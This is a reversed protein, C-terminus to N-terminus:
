RLRIGYIGDPTGALLSRSRPDLALSLVITAGASKPLGTGFPSWSRGGNTSRFVGFALTGVLVAPHRGSVVVLSAGHDDDKPMGSSTRVWQTSNAGRRWVARGMTGAFVWRSILGALSMVGAGPLRRGFSVWSVGADHSILAPSASKGSVGGITGAIVVSHSGPLWAFASAASDGLRSTLRWSRGGNKSLYIGGGAGVLLWGPRGPRLTVAYAGQPTLMHSRWRRGFDHSIAVAGSNEAAAVIRGSRSSAIDWVDAQRVVMRWSKGGARRYVGRDAGAYITGTAPVVAISHVLARPVALLRWNFDNSGTRGSGGCGALAIVCGVVVALPAWPRRPLNRFSTRSSPKRM